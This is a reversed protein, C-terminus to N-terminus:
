VTQIKTDLALFGRPVSIFNLFEKISVNHFSFMGEIVKFADRFSNARFFVWTFNIFNFTFFWALAAPLKIRTKTWVRYAILAAGHLGGWLLFNWGAGHWVGALLM